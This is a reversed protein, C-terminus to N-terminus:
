SVEARLAVQNYHLTDAQAAVAAALLGAALGIRSATRIFASM